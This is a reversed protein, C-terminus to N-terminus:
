RTVECIYFVINFIGGYRDMGWNILFIKNGEGWVANVQYM